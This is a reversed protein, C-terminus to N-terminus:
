MMIETFPKPIKRAYEEFVCVVKDDEIGEKKSVLNFETLDPTYFTDAPYTGLIKTLMIYDCLPLAQTYVEAGGIIFTFYRRENADAIAQELSSFVSIGCSRPNDKFAQFNRTIVAHSRNPLNRGLSDFTRRGMILHSCSTVKKFHEMDCKLFPWPLGENYGIGGQEDHALIMTTM